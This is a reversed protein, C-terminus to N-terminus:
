DNGPLLGLQAAERVLDALRRVDLRRMIAARHSEITKVTLDLAQAIEKTTYGAAVFALVERQRPTLRHGSEPNAEQHHVYVNIIERAISPCLFCEGRVAARIAVSLEGPGADRLLFGCAGSQLARLIYERAPRELSFAVTGVSPAHEAVYRITDRGDPQSLTLDILAVDAPIGSLLGLTEEGDHAEAVVEIGAIADLRRRIGARVPAQGAAVLLRIPSENQAAASLDATM